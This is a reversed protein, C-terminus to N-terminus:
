WYVQGREVEAEKDIFCHYYWFRYGLTTLSNFSNLFYFVFLYNSKTIIRLLGIWIELCLRFQNVPLLYGTWCCLAYAFFCSFMWALRGSAESSNLFVHWRLRFEKFLQMLGGGWKADIPLTKIGLIWQFNKYKLYFYYGGDLINIDMIM